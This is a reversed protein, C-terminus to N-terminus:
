TVTLDKQLLGLAPKLEIQLSASVINRRESNREKGCVLRQAIKVTRQWDTKQLQRGSLVGRNEDARQRRQHAGLICKSEFVHINM